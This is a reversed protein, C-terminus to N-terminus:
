RQGGRTRAGRDQQPLPPNGSTGRTALLFLREKAKTAAASQPHNRLVAEYRRKASEYRGEDEFGRAINFQTEADILRRPPATAQRQGDVQGTDADPGWSIRQVVWCVTEVRQGGAAGNRKGNQLLWAKQKADLPRVEGPGTLITPRGPVEIGPFFLTRTEPRVEVVLTRTGALENRQKVVDWDGSEYLGSLWAGAPLPLSGVVVFGNQEFFAPPYTFRSLDGVGGKGKPKEPASPAFHIEYTYELITPVPGLEQVDRESQLLEAVNRVVTRRGSLEAHRGQDVKALEKGLLSRTNRLAAIQKTLRRKEDDDQDVRIGRAREAAMRKTMAGLQQQIEKAESELEEMAVELRAGTQGLAIAEPETLAM